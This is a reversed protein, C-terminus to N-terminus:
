NIIPVDNITELVIDFLGLCSPTINNKLRDKIKLQIADADKIGIVEGKKNIGLYIIGGGLYNLFAVVEKEIDDNLREKFEIRNSESLM